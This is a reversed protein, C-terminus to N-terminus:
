EIIEKKKFLIDEKKILILDEKKLEGVNEFLRKSQIMIIDDFLNRIYRGNSFHNNKEELKLSIIDELIPVCGDELIYENKM